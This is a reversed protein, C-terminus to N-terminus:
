LKEVVRSGFDIFRYPFVTGGVSVIGRKFEPQKEKPVFFYVFGGGGAGIIKAGVAGSQYGKEIFKELEENTCSIYCKKKANLLNKLGQAFEDVRNNALLARMKNGLNRFTNIEAFIAESELFRKATINLVESASRQRGSYALIMEEELRKKTSESIEVRNVKVSGDREFALHLFGGFAAMYQDCKGIPAGLKNIELDAAEEALEGPSKQINDLAYLANLLGVTFAGSSGLGSGPPIDSTSVIDLGGKIQHSIFAQRIIPNKIVAIDSVIEKETPCNLSVLNDSRQSVTVTVYKDITAGFADGGHKKVYPILDNGGTLTIRVPTRVTVKKFTM